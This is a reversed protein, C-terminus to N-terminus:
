WVIVGRHSNFWLLIDVSLDDVALFLNCMSWKMINNEILYSYRPKLSVIMSARALAIWVADSRDLILDWCFCLVFLPHSYLWHNKKRLLSYVVRQFSHDIAKLIHGTLLAWVPLSLPMKNFDLKICQCHWSVATSYLFGYFNLILIKLLSKKFLPINIRPLLKCSRVSNPSESILGAVGCMISFTKLWFCPESTSALTQGFYEIILWGRCVWICKLRPHTHTPLHGSSALLSIWTEPKRRKKRYFIKISFNEHFKDCFYEEILLFTVSCYRFFFWSEQVVLSAQM